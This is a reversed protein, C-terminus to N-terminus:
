ALLSRGEGIREVWWGRERADDLKSWMLQLGAGLLTLGLQRDWWGDLDIGASVLADRYRAIADEKSEPLRDCNVALYWALDFTAPGAGCRDWDLLVTRGDRHTGLNGFKWDGHIFTHPTRSWPACWRARTARWTRSCRHSVPCRAASGTGDRLWPAPCRTWEGM